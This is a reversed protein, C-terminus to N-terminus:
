STRREAARAAVRRDAGLLLLVDDARRLVRHGAAGDGVGLRRRQDARRARVLGRPQRGPDGLAGARRAPSRARLPDARRRGRRARRAAADGTARRPRSSASASRTSGPSPARGAATRGGVHRPAYALGTLSPARRRAPPRHGGLRGVDHHLRRPRRHRPAGAAGPSSTRRAHAGILALLGSGSWTSRSRPGPSRRGTRPFAHELGWRALAGLAGGVATLLSAPGRATVHPPDRGRTLVADLDSRAWRTPEEGRAQRGFESFYWDQLDM